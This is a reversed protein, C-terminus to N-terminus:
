NWAEVFVSLADEEELEYVASKGSDSRVSFKEDDFALRFTHRKTEILVSMLFGGDYEVTM